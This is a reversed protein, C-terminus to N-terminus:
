RLYRDLERHMNLILKEQNSALWTQRMGRSRLGEQIRPINSLDQRPILGLQEPDEASTAVQVEARPPKIGQAYTKTSFIEFTCQNPDTPHPLARYMAANGAQPLILVNPFIVIVGGWMALIEPSPKPM